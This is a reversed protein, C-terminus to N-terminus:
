LDSLFEVRSELMESNVLSLSGSGFDIAYAVPKENSLFLSYGELKLPEEHQLRYLPIAIAIDGGPGMIVKDKM